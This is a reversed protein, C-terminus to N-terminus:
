IQEQDCGLSSTLETNLGLIYLGSTPLQGERRLYVAAELAQLLLATTEAQFVSTNIISSCVLVQCWIFVARYSRLVQCINLFVITLVHVNFVNQKKSLKFLCAHPFRIISHNALLDHNLRSKNNKRIVHVM